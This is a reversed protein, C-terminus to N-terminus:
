FAEKYQTGDWELRKEVWKQGDWQEVVLFQPRQDVAPAAPAAACGASSFGALFAAAPIGKGKTTKKM